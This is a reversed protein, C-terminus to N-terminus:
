ENSPQRSSPLRATTTEQHEEQMAESNSKQDTRENEQYRRKLLRKYYLYIFYAVVLVIGLLLLTLNFDRELQEQFFFGVSGYFLARPIVGIITPIIFKRFEINTLGAGYSIADFPIFPLLRGLLIIMMGHREVLDDVFAIEEVTIFKLALDRGGKRSIYFAATAGLTSGISGFIVVLAIGIVIGYQDAFAAAAAALILESPIPAFIAQAVMAIVLGLPGITQILMLLFDIAQMGVSQIIDLTLYDGLPRDKM